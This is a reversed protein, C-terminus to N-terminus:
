GQMSQYLLRNMERQLDEDDIEEFFEEDIDSASSRVELDTEKINVYSGDGFKAWMKNKKKFLHILIQGNKVKANNPERLAIEEPLSKMEFIYQEGFLDKVKM